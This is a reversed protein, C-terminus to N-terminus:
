LQSNLKDLLEILHDCKERFDDMEKKGAEGERQEKSLSVIRKIEDHVVKHEREIDSMIPLNEFDKLGTSYLWKGFECEHHDSVESAKLETLGCMFDVLKSKWDLHAIKAMTVDLNSM